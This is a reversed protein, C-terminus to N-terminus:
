GGCEKETEGLPGIVKAAFIAVLEPDFQRGACRVLEALAAAPPVPQRYPRGNTMVDYADIISLIRALLPIEQGQLGRPYGSGDYWEHHSLIEEAVYALDPTSQAIRYGQECHKRIVKWEAEDLSGPKDLIRDPVAIKGIDHMTVLLMLKDLDSASLGVAAGLAVANEKLRETHAQTEKTKSELSKQLSTLLFSRVSKGELLKHRYMRDEAEKIVASLSQQTDIRVASGLAISIPLLCDASRRDCEDRIRACISEAIAETTNPLLIAFEDGGWRCIIDERRCSAQLIGAAERLLRDGEQHGYSDNVLKLGNLDGMIIALPLQRAAGLRNLEVEFYNRNYLGTLSDRFTLYRIKEEAAKRDTIDMVLGDVWLLTDGEWISQATDQVWRVVGDARVIRYEESYRTPQSILHRQGALVAERDASYVVDKIWDVQGSRFAAAAYGCINGFEESFYAAQRDPSGAIRYIAGPVNEVLSRYHRESEGLAKEAMKQATINRTISLVTEVRGDARFEPVIRAHYYNEREASIYEYFLSAERGTVFAEKVVAELKDVNERSMGVERMTKGILSARSQPIVLEKEVAPNIYLRRLDRDFRVIVDPANEALARFEEERQRLAAEARKRETSDRIAGIRIKREDLTVTKGRIEVPFVTGDRRLGYAEYIETSGTNARKRIIARSEPAFLEGGPKGVMEKRSYGFIEVAAKNVDYIIWEGDRQGSILIAEFAADSLARYRAESESLESQIQRSLALQDTLREEAALLQENSATLQENAAALEENIALYDNNAQLLKQEAAKLESIDTFAGIMRVPRGAADRDVVRGRDLIWRCEGHPTLVRYECEYAPIKGAFHDDLVTLVRAKDDPHLSNLWAQRYNNLDDDTLDFMEKELRTLYAKGTLSDWEWVGSESGDLAFQLREAWLRRENEEQKRQTIDRSSVVLGAWAGTEDRYPKALAELWHYQGGKGRIRVETRTPGATVTVAAATATVAALDDPHVFDYTHKGIVEEPRLGTIKEVSPTMYEWIGQANIIGVIDSANDVVQRFYGAQRQLTQEARCRLLAAGVCTLYMGVIASAPGPVEAPAAVIFGGLLEGHPRIGLWYLTSNDTLRQPRPLGCRSLLRVASVACSWLPGTGDEPQAGLLEGIIEAPLPVDTTPEAAPGAASKIVLQGDGEVTCFLLWEARVIGAMGDAIVRYDIEGDPFSLVGTAQEFLDTQGQDAAVPMVGMILGFKVAAQRMQFFLAIRIWDTILYKSM